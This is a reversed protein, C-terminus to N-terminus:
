TDKITDRAYVVERVGAGNKFREGILDVQEARHPVVRYSPPLKDETLVDRFDSQGAFMKQFEKYADAKTVFSARKVEPMDRLQHGVTDIEDPTADPKMFVELEIGGKWQLTARGVAQKVLLAGGVLALSVTVTLIAASTMLLNRRLNTITERAFYDVKLAM